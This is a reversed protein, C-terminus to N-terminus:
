ITQPELNNTHKRRKREKRVMEVTALHAMNLPPLYPVGMTTDRARVMVTQSFM